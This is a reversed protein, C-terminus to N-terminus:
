RLVRNDGCGLAIFTTMVCVRKVWSNLDALDNLPTM